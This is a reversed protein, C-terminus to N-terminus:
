RREELAAWLLEGATLTLAHRNTASNDTLRLDEEKIFRKGIKVRLQAHLHADLDRLKMTIQLGRHNVHGVVLHFCHRQRVLNNDEIAALNLLDAPGHIKILPGGIEENGAKNSRRLHIEQLDGRGLAVSAVEDELCGVKSTPLDDISAGALM